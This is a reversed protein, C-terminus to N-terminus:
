TAVSCASLKLAPVLVPHETVPEVTVTVPTLPVQESVAVIAASM